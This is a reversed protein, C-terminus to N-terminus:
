LRDRPVAIPKPRRAAAWWPRRRTQVFGVSFPNSSRRVLPRGVSRWHSPEVHPTKIDGSPDSGVQTAAGAPDSGPCLFRTAGATSESWFFRRATTQGWIAHRKGGRPRVRVGLLSIM